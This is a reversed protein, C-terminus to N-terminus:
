KAGLLRKSGWPRSWFKRLTSKNLRVADKVLAIATASPMALKRRSRIRNHGRMFHHLSIHPKQDGAAFQRAAIGNLEDRISVYAALLREDTAEEINCRAVLFERTVRCIIFRELGRKDPFWGAFKVAGAKEDYAAIPDFM